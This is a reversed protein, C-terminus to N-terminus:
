FSSIAASELSFICRFRNKSLDIRQVSVEIADCVVDRPIIELDRNSLDMILVKQMTYKDPMSMTSVGVSNTSDQTSTGRSCVMEQFSTIEDNTLRSKLYKLIGITGRQIIDRRLAKFPNGELPLSQFSIDIQPRILANINEM